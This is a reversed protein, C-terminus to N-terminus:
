KISILRKRCFGEAGFTTCIKYFDETSNDLDILVENSYKIVCVTESYANPESHIELRFCDVVGIVANDTKMKIGKEDNGLVRITRQEFM